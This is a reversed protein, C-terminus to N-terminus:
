SVDVYNSSRTLNPNYIGDLFILFKGQFFASEIGLEVPGGIQRSRQERRSPSSKGRKSRWTVRNTPMSRSCRWPKTKASRQHMPSPHSNQSRRRPDAPSRTVTLTTMPPPTGGVEALELATSHKTQTPELPSPATQHLASTPNATLDMMLGHTQEDPNTTTNTIMAPFLVQPRAREIMAYVKKTDQAKVDKGCLTTMVTTM